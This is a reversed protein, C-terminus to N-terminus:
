YRCHHRRRREVFELNLAQLAYQAFVGTVRNHHDIDPLAFHELQGILEPDIEVSRHAFEAHGESM